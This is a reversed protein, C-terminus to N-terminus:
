VGALSGRYRQAFRRRLLMAVVTLGLTILLLLFAAAYTYDILGFQIAHSGMTNVYPQPGYRTAFVAYDLTSVVGTPSVGYQGTGAIFLIVALSGAAEAAGLLLGTVINPGAWPLLIRRQGYGETAGLAVSGERIERPASRLGDETLRAIVPIVLLSLFLSATLFSGSGAQAIGGTTLSFSGRILQSLLSSADLGAALGVFSLAAIGILFVSIARLMTTSFGIVSALRGPYEAMFLGAGVGPLISILLTMAILQLTGLIQNWFGLEYFAGLVQFGTPHNVQAWATTVLQLSVQTAGAALVRGLLLGYAVLALAVPVAIVPYLSIDEATPSGGLLRRLGYSSTVVALLVLLPGSFASRHIIGNLQSGYVYEPVILLLAMVAIAFVVLRLGTRDWSGLRRQQGVLAGVLGLSILGAAPVAGADAEDVFLAALGVILGLIAAALPAAFILRGSRRIAEIPVGFIRRNAQASRTLRAPHLESGDLTTM